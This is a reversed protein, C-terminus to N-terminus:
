KAVGGVHALVNVATNRISVLRSLAGLTTDDGSSFEAIGELAKVLADRQRGTDALLKAQVRANKELLDITHTLRANDNMLDIVADHNAM